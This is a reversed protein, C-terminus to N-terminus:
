EKIEKFVDLGTAGSDAYRKLVQMMEHQVTVPIGNEDLIWFVMRVAEEKSSWILPKSELVCATMKENVPDVISHLDKLKAGFELTGGSVNSPISKSM